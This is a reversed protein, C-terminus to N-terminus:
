TSATGHRVPDAMERLKEKGESCGWMFFSTKRGGFGGKTGGKNERSLKVEGRVIFGEM